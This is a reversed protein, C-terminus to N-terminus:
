TRESVQKMIAAALFDSREEQPIDVYNFFDDWTPLEHSYSLQPYIELFEVYKDALPENNKM